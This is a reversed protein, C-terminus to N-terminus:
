HVASSGETAGPVPVFEPHRRRAEECAEVLFTPPQEQNMQSYFSLVYRTPVVVAVFGPYGTMFLAYIGDDCEYFMGHIKQHPELGEWTVGGTLPQKQGLIWDSVTQFDKATNFMREVKKAMTKAKM